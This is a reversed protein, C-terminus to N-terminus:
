LYVLCISVLKYLVLYKLVNFAYHETRKKCSKKNLYRVM